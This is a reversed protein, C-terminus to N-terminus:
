IQIKDFNRREYTEAKRGRAASDFNIFDDRFSKSTNQNVWYICIYVRRAEWNWVGFFNFKCTVVVNGSCRREQFLDVM